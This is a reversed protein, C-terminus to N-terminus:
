LVPKDGKAMLGTIRLEGHTRDNNDATATWAAAVYAFTEADGKM